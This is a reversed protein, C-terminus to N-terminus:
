GEVERAAVFNAATVGSRAMETPAVVKVPAPPPDAKVVLRIPAPPLAFQPANLIAALKRTAGNNAGPSVYAPLSVLS